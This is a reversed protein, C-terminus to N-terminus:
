VVCFPESLSIADNNGMTRENLIKTAEELWDLIAQAEPDRIQERALDFPLTRAFSLDHDSKVRQKIVQALARKEGRSMRHDELTIKLADRIKSDAM